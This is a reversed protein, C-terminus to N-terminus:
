TRTIIHETNAQQLSTHTMHETNTRTGTRRRAGNIMQEVVEEPLSTLGNNSPNPNSTLLTRKNPLQKVSSNTKSTIHAQQLPFINITAPKFIKDHNGQKNPCEPRACPPYVSPFPMEICVCFYLFVRIGIYIRLLESCVSLPCKRLYINTTGGLHPRCIKSKLALPHRFFSNQPSHQM